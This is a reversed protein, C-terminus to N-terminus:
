AVWTSVVHNKALGSVKLLDASVEFPAPVVDAIERTEGKKKKKKPELNAEDIVQNIAVTRYGVSVFAFRNDKM